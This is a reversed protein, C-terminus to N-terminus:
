ASIKNGKKANCPWCMTKYNQISDKGGFSKPLVHDKTFYEEKGCSRKGYLNLSYGSYSDSAVLEIAFYSGELNCAYCYLGKLKFCSYRDEKLNIPYKSESEGRILSLGDDISLIAKRELVKVSGIKKIM